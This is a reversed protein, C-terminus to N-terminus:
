VIMTKDRLTNLYYHLLHIDNVYKKENCNRCTAENVGALPIRFKDSTSGTLNTM